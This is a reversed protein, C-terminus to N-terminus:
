KFRPVVDSGLSKAAVIKDQGPPAYFMLNRIGNDHLRGVAKAIDKATGNLDGARDVLFDFVGLEKALTAFSKPVGHTRTNHLKDLELLASKYTEPILKGEMTARTMFWVGMGGMNELAAERSEALNISLHWWLDLDDPNRGVEEAGEKVLDKVYQVCEASAGMGTNLILGDAVQSAM